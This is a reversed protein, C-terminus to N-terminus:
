FRSETIWTFSIRFRETSTSFVCFFFLVFGKGAYDLKRYAALLAQETQDDITITTPDNVSVLPTRGYLWQPSTGVADAIKFLTEAKPQFRGSIYGSLSSM